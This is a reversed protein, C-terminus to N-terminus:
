ASVGIISAANSWTMSDALAEGYKAVIAAKADSMVPSRAGLNHADSAILTAWGQEVFHWATKQAPEGFNGTLSGATLQFLCGMTHFIEMRQPNRMVDKNREPHVIMPQIGRGFLWRVLKDAGLPINGHPMELLMVRRGEWTGITPAENELVLDIVVDSLHVEGGLHLNLDINKSHLIKKFADFKPKIFSLPNKYVGDFVHPTAVLHTTGNEIAVEAMAISTALDPSGDDIGPLIHCHCDIM